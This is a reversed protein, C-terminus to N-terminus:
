RRHDGTFVMGAIPISRWRAFFRIEILQLLRGPKYNYIFCFIAVLFAQKRNKHSYDQLELLLEQLVVTHSNANCDVTKAPDAAVDQACEIGLAVPLVQLDDGDVIQAIALHVSMQQTEVCNVAREAAGDFAVAFTQCDITVTDSDASDAVRGLQWPFGLVDIDDKFAGTQEGVAFFGGRVDGGPGPFHNDRSGGFARVGGDYVADVVVGQALRM